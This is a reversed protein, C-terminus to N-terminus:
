GGGSSKLSVKGGSITYSTNAKQKQEATLEKLDDFSAAKKNTEMYYLDAQTQLTSQFARDTDNEVNESVKSMNPVILLLLLSIIFVVILMELLTFGSESMKKMKEWKKKM